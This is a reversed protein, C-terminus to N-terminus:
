INSKRNIPYQKKKFTKKRPRSPRDPRLTSVALSIEKILRDIALKRLFDSPLRCAIVFDDKLSGILQSVNPAQKRRNNKESTRIQIKQDAERKAIAVIISLTVTVWFDQLVANKTYGSFNELELKNKLVDYKGEVGWRLSYLAPLEDADVEFLNTVLTEEEGSPLLFKYVRVKDGNKLTCVSDGLALCEVEKLWSKQCRMLYKMNDLAPYSLMDLSPYGRDFLIIKKELRAMNKELFDLHGKAAERENLAYRGIVADIVWDHLVDCLISIGAMAQSGDRGSAGFERQLEPTNPLVATSGDVAFIHYGNWTELEDDFDGGYELEVHTRAMKEFPSHDFHNRAKSLAQQSMRLAREGLIKFYNNLRTQLCEKAPNLLFYLLECFPMTRNRTFYRPDVRAKEKTEDAQSINRVVESSYETKM